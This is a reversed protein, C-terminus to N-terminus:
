TITITKTYTGTNGAADSVTYVVNFTGVTVMDVLADDIVINGTLDGDTEDTATIGASWDPAATGSVFSAPTTKDDSIIPAVVDTITITKTLTASDGWEDTVTWVVDFTGGKGMDVSGTDIVLTTNTSDEDSYSIYGSWDPEPVTNNFAVIGGLDAIVPHDNYATLVFRLGNHHYFQVDFAGEKLGMSDVITGLNDARGKLVRYKKAM